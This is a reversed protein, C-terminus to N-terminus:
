LYRGDGFLFFGVLNVYDVGGSYRRVEGYLSWFVEITCRQSRTYVCSFSLFDTSNLSVGMM